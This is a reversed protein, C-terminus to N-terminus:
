EEKTEENSVSVKQQSTNKDLTTLEIMPVDVTCKEAWGNFHLIVHWPKAM